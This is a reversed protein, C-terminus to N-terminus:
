SGRIEAVVQRVDDVSLGAESAAALLRDVGALVEGLDSARALGIAARLVSVPPAAAEKLTPKPIIPPLVMPKTMNPEEGKKPTIDEERVAAVTRGAALKAIAGGDPKADVHLPPQGSSALDPWLELLKEYSERSPGNQHNEWQAVAQGTVGVLDGVDDQTLGDATRFTAVADGFVRPVAAVPAGVRVGGTLVACAVESPAALLRPKLHRLTPLAFVVRAFQRAEPLYAEAIWDDVTRFPVKAMQALARAPVKHRKMAEALLSSFEHPTLPSVALTM